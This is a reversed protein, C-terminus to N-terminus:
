NYPLVASAMYGVAAVCMGLVILVAIMAKYLTTTDDYM